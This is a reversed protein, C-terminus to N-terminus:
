SAAATEVPPVEQTCFACRTAAIPISSLCYPCDRTTPDPPLEQKRRSMLFNMPKVVFFFIIAALIVFNIIATIFAGFLFKGGNVDLIWEKSFDPKGGFAALLPSILDTTFATVVAGFAVGIVVAIALDIVNGRLIFAKFEDLM